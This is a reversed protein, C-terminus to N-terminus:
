IGTKVTDESFVPCGPERYSCKKGECVGALLTINSFMKGEGSARIGCPDNLLCSPGAPHM